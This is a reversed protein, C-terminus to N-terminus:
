LLGRKGPTRALDAASRGRGGAAARRQAAVRGQQGLPNSVAKLGMRAAALLQNRMLSLLPSILISPGAGAERLLRCAIFYLNSKGWGTRQIVLLRGRGEVLHRVAEEQGERFEAEPLGTGARLLEKARAADYRM